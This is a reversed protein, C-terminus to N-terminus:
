APRVVPLSPGWPARVRVHDACEHAARGIRDLVRLLSVPGMDPDSSLAVIAGELEIAAEQLLWDLRDDVESSTLHQHPM